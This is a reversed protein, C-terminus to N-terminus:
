HPFSERLFHLDVNRYGSFSVFCIRRAACISQGLDLVQVDRLVVLPISSTPSLLHVDVFIEVGPVNRLM